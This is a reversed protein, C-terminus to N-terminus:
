LRHLRRALYLPLSLWPVATVEEDPLSIEEREWVVSAVPGELACRRPMGPPSQVARQPVDLNDASGSVDNVAAGGQGSRQRRPRGKLFAARPTTGPSSTSRSPNLRRQRSPQRRLRHYRDVGSVSCPSRFPSGPGPRRDASPSPADPAPPRTAQATHSPLRGASAGDM